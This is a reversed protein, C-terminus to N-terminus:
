FYYSEPGIWVTLKMSGMAQRKNKVMIASHSLHGLCEWLRNTGQNKKKRKKNMRLRRARGVM